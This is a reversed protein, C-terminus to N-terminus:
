LLFSIKIIHLQLLLQDFLFIVTVSVLVPLLQPQPVVHVEPDHPDLPVAHVEPLHPQPQPFLPHAFVELKFLLPFQPVHFLPVHFPV